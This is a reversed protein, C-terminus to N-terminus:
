AMSEFLRSIKLLTYEEKTSFQISRTSSSSRSSSHLDVYHYSLAHQLCRLTTFQKYPGLIRQTTQRQKGKEFSIKVTSREWFM